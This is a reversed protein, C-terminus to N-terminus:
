ASGCRPVAVEVVLDEAEQQHQDVRELVAELAGDFPASRFRAWPCRSIDSSSGVWILSSARLMPKSAECMVLM